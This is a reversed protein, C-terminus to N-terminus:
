RASDRRKDRRFAARKNASRITAAEVTKRIQAVLGTTTRDTLSGCGPRTSTATSRESLLPHRVSDAPGRFVEGPGPGPAAHFRRAPLFPEGIPNSGDLTAALGTKSVGLILGSVVFDQAAAIQQRAQLAHLNGQCRISAAQEVLEPRVHRRVAQSRRFADSNGTSPGPKRAAIAAGEGLVANVSKFSGRVRCPEEATSSLEVDIRGAPWRSARGARGRPGLKRSM